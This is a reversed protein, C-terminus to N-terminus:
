SAGEAQYPVVKVDPNVTNGGLYLAVMVSYPGPKLKGRLDVTFVGAKGYPANGAGVLEGGPNVVVYRCVPIEVAEGDPSQSRLPERAITYSRQFKM